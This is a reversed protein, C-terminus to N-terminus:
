PKYGALAKEDGACPEGVRFDFLCQALFDCPRCASGEGRKESIPVIREGANTAKVSADIDDHIGAGRHARRHIPLYRVGSVVGVIAIIDNQSMSIAKLCEISVQGGSGHCDSGFYRLARHNSDRAIGAVARSWVQVEAEKSSTEREIREFVQFSRIRFYRAQFM